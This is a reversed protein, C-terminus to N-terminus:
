SLPCIFLLDDPAYGFQSIAAFRFLNDDSKSTRDISLDSLRFTYANEGGMISQM